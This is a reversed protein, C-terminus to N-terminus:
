AQGGARIAVAKMKLVSAGVAMLTEYWGHREQARNFAATMAQLEDDSWVKIETPWVEKACAEREAAAVLAAFRELHTIHVDMDQDGPSFFCDYDQVMGAERAMRIIDERNM